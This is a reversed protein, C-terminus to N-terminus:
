QIQSKKLKQNLKIKDSLIQEQNFFIDDLSSILLSKIDSLSKQLITLKENEEKYKKTYFTYFLQTTLLATKEKKIQSLLTASKGQTIQLKVQLEKIMSLRNIYTTFLTAYEDQNIPVPTNKLKFNKQNSFAVLKLLLTKQLDLENSKKKEKSIKNLLSNYYKTDANVITSNLDASFLLSISFLLLFISKM